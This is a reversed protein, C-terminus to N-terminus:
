KNEEGGTDMKGRVEKIKSKLTEIYRKRWFGPSLKKADQLTMSLLHLGEKLAQLDNYSSYTDALSCVHRLVEEFHVQRYAERTAKSINRIFIWDSKYKKDISSLFGVHNLCAHNLLDSMTEYPLEGSEVAKRFISYTDGPLRFTVPFSEGRTGVSKVVFEDHSVKKPM